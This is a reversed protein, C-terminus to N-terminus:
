MCKNKCESCFVKVNVGRKDLALLNFVAEHIESGDARGCGALIVAVKSM